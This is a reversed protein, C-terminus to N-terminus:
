GMQTEYVDSLPIYEAEGTPMVWMYGSGEAIMDFMAKEVARRRMRYVRYSLKWKM